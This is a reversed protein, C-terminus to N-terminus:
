RQHGAIAGIQAGPKDYDGLCCRGALPSKRRTVQRKWWGLEKALLTARECYRTLEGKRQQDELERMPNNCVALHRV